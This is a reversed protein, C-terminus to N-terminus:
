TRPAVLEAKISEVEVIFRQILRDFDPNGRLEPKLELYNEICKQAFSDMHTFQEERTQYKKISEFYIVNALVKLLDSDQKPNQHILAAAINLYMDTEDATHGLSIRREASKIKSNNTGFPTSIIEDKLVERAKAETQAVYSNYAEYGEFAVYRFGNLSISGDVDDVGLNSLDSLAVEGFEVLVQGDKIMHQVNPDFLVFHEGVLPEPIRTRDAERIMPDPSFVNGELLVRTPHIAESDDSYPTMVGLMRHDIAQDEM